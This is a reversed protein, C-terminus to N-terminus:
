ILRVCCENIQCVTIGAISWSGSYVCTVLPDLRKELRSNLKWTEYGFLLVSIGNLGIYDMM